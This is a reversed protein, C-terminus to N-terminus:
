SEWRRAGRLLRGQRGLVVAKTQQQLLGADICFVQKDLGADIGLLSFGSVFQLLQDETFKMM